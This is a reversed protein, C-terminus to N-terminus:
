QTSQYSVFALRRSDPSWSPADITGLGGILKALVRIKGDGLTMVRLQVDTDRPDGNLDKASSLFAMQKGDPSIHPFWNNFDESTVQEHEAGDPRMRWIQMTGTRDSNFYISKGDPSYEPNDNRGKGSGLRSERGGPAPVTYIDVTGRRQGSFVITNGDPSWGHWYSPAKQTIRRPPGGALPVTYVRYHGREASDDSFGLSKGDPSIGHDSNCHTAFGTDIPKPKGGTEPVREIRGNRNFLLSAGDHTWNPAEIREPAVYVVRRDTSTVTITELTSYLVPRANAPSASTKLEVNSFVASEVVDKDHSCVGIGIYFPDALSVQMAGGAVHLDEGDRAVSMYFFKGRKSISV